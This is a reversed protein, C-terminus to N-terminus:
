ANSGGLMYSSPTSVMSLAIDFEYGQHDLATVCAHIASTKSAGDYGLCVHHKKAFRRVESMTRVKMANYLEQSETMTYAM